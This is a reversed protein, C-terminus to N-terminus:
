VVSEYPINNKIMRHISEPQILKRIVITNFIVSKRVVPVSTHVDTFGIIILHRVIGEDLTMDRQM